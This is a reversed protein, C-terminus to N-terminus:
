ISGSVGMVCTKISLSYENWFTEKLNKKTEAADTPLFSKMSLLDEDVIGPEGNAVEHATLNVMTLDRLEPESLNGHSRRDQLVQRASTARHFVDPDDAPMNVDDVPIEVNQAIKTRAKRQAMGEPSNLYDRVIKEARNRVNRHRESQQLIFKENKEEIDIAKLKPDDPDIVACCYLFAVKVNKHYLRCLFRSCRRRFKGFRFLFTEIRKPTDESIANKQYQPLKAHKVLKLFAMAIRTQVESAPGQSVVTLGPRM